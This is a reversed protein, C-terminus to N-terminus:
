SKYNKRYLVPNTSPDNYMKVARYTKVIRKGEAIDALLQRIATILDSKQTYLLHLKKQCFDIHDDSADERRVEVEMHYIKLSLISLRDLAWAISETNLRADPRPKIPAFFNYYFDDIKEVTDTRQQNLLDIRRKIKLAEVPEIDPDRILDELHWQVCDIANKLYLFYEFTGEEYPVSIPQNVDDHTHYDDVSQDFIQYIFDIDTHIPM